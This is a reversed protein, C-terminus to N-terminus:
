PRAVKFCRENEDWHVKDKYEGWMQQWRQRIKRRGHRAIYRRLVQESTLKDDEGRGLFEDWTAGPITARQWTSDTFFDTLIVLAVDGVRVDFWFDMVHGKVRTEDELKNILYPVSEKGHTILQEVVPLENYDRDQVRGKPAIAGIQALNINSLQVVPVPQARRVSAVPRVPHTLVRRTDRQRYLSWLSNSAVGVSIAFLFVIASILRKM